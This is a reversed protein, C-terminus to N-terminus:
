PVALSRLHGWVTALARLDHYNHRLVAELLEPQGTQLFQQYLEPVERAGPDAERPRCTLWVELQSLRANGVLPKLYRRAEGVLDLCAVAPWPGDGDLGWFARRTRLYPLDFSRGNYTVLAEFREAVLRDLADLLELEGDLQLCVLQLYRWTGQPADQEQWALGALFVPFVPALGLTEVDLVAVRGRGFLEALQSDRAGRRRLAAIERRQLLELARRAAGGYTRHAQLATLTAFGMERLRAERRPGVGHALRLRGEWWPSSAGAPGAGEEM